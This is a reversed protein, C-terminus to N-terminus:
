VIYLKYNFAATVRLLITTQYMVGFARVLAISTHFLICNIKDMYWQLDLMYTKSMKGQIDDPTDQITVKMKHIDNSTDIKGIYNNRTTGM